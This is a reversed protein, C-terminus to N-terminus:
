NKWASGSRADDPKQFIGYDVIREFIPRVSHDDIVQCERVHTALMQMCSQDALCGVVVDHRRLRLGHDQVNITLLKPSSNIVTKCLIGPSYSTRSVQNQVPSTSNFQGQFLNLNFNLYVKNDLTKM